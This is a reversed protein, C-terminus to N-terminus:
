NFLVDGKHLITPSTGYNIYNETDVMISKYRDLWIVKYRRFNKDYFIMGFQLGDLKGKDTQYFNAYWDPILTFWYHGKIKNFRVQVTAKIGFRQFLYQWREPIEAMLLFPMPTSENVEGSTRHMFRKTIDRYELEGSIKEALLTFDNDNVPFSYFINYFDSNNEVQLVKNESLLVEIKGWKVVYFDTKIPIKERNGFVPVPQYLYSKRVLTDRKFVDLYTAYILSDPYLKLHNGRRVYRGFFTYYEGGATCGAWSRYYKFLGNHLLMLKERHGFARYSYILTDTKNSVVPSKIIAKHQKVCSFILFVIFLIGIVQKM